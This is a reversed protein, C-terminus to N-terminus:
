ASSPRLRPWRRAGARADEYKDHVDLLQKSAEALALDKRIAASVQEYPQVVEPTIATVRVLVPGFAGAVVDSVQNVALAFAADAVAKDPVQARSLTGLQTDQATKGADTVLKDFTAGSKLAAVATDAAEKSPFVLQEIARTEPTTYRAKNKEYEAKVADEAIAATDAIDDPELKM